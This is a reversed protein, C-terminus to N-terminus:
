FGRYLFINEIKTFSIEVFVYMFYHLFFYHYSKKKPPPPSSKKCPWPFKGGVGKSCAGASIM